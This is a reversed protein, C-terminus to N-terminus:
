RLPPGKFNPGLPLRLRTPRHVRAEQLSKQLRAAAEPLHVVPQEWALHLLLLQELTLAQDKNSEEVVMRVLELNPEGGPLTVTVTTDTTQGYSPLPHGSKLQEQFIVDVGRGTREVLGARKLADALARNRPHPQTVLLNSLFVGQPLGGPSSIEIREPSAQVNVSGLRTYDRHIVANAFAERFTRESYDPVSIRFLGASMEKQRNFSRFWSMVEEM